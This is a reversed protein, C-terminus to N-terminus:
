EFGNAFIVDSEEQGGFVVYSTGSENGNPDALRAGVVLDGLGDSNIDGVTSVSGGSNDGTSVGNIVFGNSGNLSSLDVSAPWAQDSGFVMYSSGSDSGNPDALPAGIIVDVFGDVNFDGATQVSTGSNDGAAVGNLAFGNSGNLGSLNVPSTWTQDSGFVVYSAGSGTGNPDAQPAGIVLDDIGDANVDGAFSVSAGAEDDASVGNIVVGNSGDLASLSVSSAWADGSGFVVYSAGNYDGETGAFIAGIALDDVGDGNIDGAAGVSKGLSDREGVSSILFGNTGNLGSLNVPSSWAEDSGFVVYGAGDGYSAYPAGIILDDIGDGNIDGAASVSAGSEDYSEVGVIVFGNSGDIASLNLPNPLGEDDGFIVYSAGAYDVGESASPAGIILDDIGDGNIDGAASVSSGSLDYAGAGNIVIGNTGNLTSLNLPNPLGTSSGFVLYSKGALNAVTAAYPAGIILDDMGDGNIDGALSVSAGSYDGATVGTLAFGNTGNLSSLEFSPGFDASASGITLAMSIALTLRNRNVHNCVIMTKEGNTGAYRFFVVNIQIACDPPLIEPLLVVSHSWHRVRM